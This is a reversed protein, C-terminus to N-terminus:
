IVYRPSMTEYNSTSDVGACRIELSSCSSALSQAYLHKRRYRRFFIFIASGALAGAGVTGLAIGAMTAKETPSQKEPSSRFPDSGADTNGLNTSAPVTAGSVAVGATDTLVLHPLQSTTSFNLLNTSATIDHSSLATPGTIESNNGSAISAASTVASSSVLSSSVLAQQHFHKYQTTLSSHAPAETSAIAVTKTTPTVGSTVKSFGTTPAEAGEKVSADLSQATVKTTSTHPFTPSSRLHSTVLSMPSPSSLEKTAEVTQAVTSIIKSSPMVPIDTDAKAVASSSLRTSLSHNPPTNTISEHVNSTELPLASLMQTTIAPPPGSTLITDISIVIDVSKSSRHVHTETYDFTFTRTTSNGYFRHATPSHPQGLALMRGMGFIFVFGQLITTVMIYFRRCCSRGAKSLTNLDLPFEVSLAPSVVDLTTFYYCMAM